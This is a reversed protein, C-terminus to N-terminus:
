GSHCRITIETSNKIPKLAPTQHYRTPANFASSAVSFNVFREARSRLLFRVDPFNVFEDRSVFLEEIRALKVVLLLPKEKTEVLVVSRNVDLIGIPLEGM